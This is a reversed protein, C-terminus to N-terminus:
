GREGLQRELARIRDRLRVAQEYEEAAIAAELERRLGEVQRQVSLAGGERRPVKGTHRTAGHVRQLLPELRTIFAEYCRSCGLLGTRAFEEYNLGCHGCRAGDAPAERRGALWEQYNLLESLFHHIPFPAELPIGLEQQERAACEGCLHSESKDGNVMRTIHVTATREQCRECQM